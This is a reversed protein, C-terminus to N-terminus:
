LLVWAHWYTIAVTKNLLVVINPSLSIVLAVLLKQYAM